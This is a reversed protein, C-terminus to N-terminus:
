VFNTFHECLHYLVVARPVIWVCADMVAYSVSLSFSLSRHMRVCVGLWVGDHTCRMPTPVTKRFVEEGAILYVKGLDNCIVLLKM